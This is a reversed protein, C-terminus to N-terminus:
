QQLPRGVGQAVVQIVETKILTTTAFLHKAHNLKAM